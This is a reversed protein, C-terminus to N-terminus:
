LPMTSATLQWVGIPPRRRVTCSRPRRYFRLEREYPAFKSSAARPTGREIGGAILRDLLRVAAHIANDVLGTWLPRSSPRLGINAEPYNDPLNKDDPMQESPKFPLNVGSFSFDIGKTRRM